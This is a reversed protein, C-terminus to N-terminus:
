EELMSFCPINKMLEINKSIKAKFASELWYFLLSMEVVLLTSKELAAVKNRCVPTLLRERAGYEENIGLNREIKTCFSSYSDESLIPLTFDYSSSPISYKRKVKTKSKQMERERKALIILKEFLEDNKMDEVEITEKGRM